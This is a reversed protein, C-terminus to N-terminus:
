EWLSRHPVQFHYSHMVILRRHLSFVISIKCLEAPTIRWQQGVFGRYNLIVSEVRLVEETESRYEISSAKERIIADTYELTFEIIASVFPKKHLFIEHRYQSLGVNPRLGKWIIQNIFTCYRSETSPPKAQRDIKRQVVATWVYENRSAILKNQKQTDWSLSLILCIM